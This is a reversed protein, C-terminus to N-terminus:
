ARRPPIVRREQLQDLQARFMDETDLCDHFGAQRVKITSNVIPVRPRSMASLMLDAYVLSNYGVFDLLKASARLDYKAVIAAWEQDFKPLEEALSIPRHEGVEMGLTEAIAPWINEWMFMDGNTLNFTENRAAPATAAWAIARGVLGADVAERLSSESGRGPFDLPRGTEKLLAAYAAIVLTPNMNNGPADGYIVTPRFVTMGWTGHQQKERLYDEQLFYFNPHEVRPDRERLPFKVRSYGVQPHHLGYAKTGHMLTVHQLDDAVSELPEFLNRLMTANREMLDTDLWGPLLGSQEQLAAYVLHTIDRMKGFAERCAAADLLDVQVFEARQIELPQRRSIGVVEWDPQAAFAEIAAHGM